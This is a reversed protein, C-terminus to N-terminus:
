GQGGVGRRGPACHPADHVMRESPLWFLEHTPARGASVRFFNSLVPTRVEAGPSTQVEGLTVIRVGVCLTEGVDTSAKKNDAQYIVRHGNRRLDFPGGRPWPKTHVPSERVSKRM